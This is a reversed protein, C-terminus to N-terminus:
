KNIKIVPRVGYTESAQASQVIINIVDNVNTGLCKVISISNESAYPSRLMWNACGISNKLTSVALGLARAYESTRANKASDDTDYIYNFGYKTSKAEKYSLLYVKDVTNDCAYGNKNSATTDSSNDVETELIKEQELASFAQNYFEENLWARVASTSYDNGSTAFKQGSLVYESLLTVVGDKDELVRWKIPQVKFFYDQSKIQKSKVEAGKKDLSVVANDFSVAINYPKASVKVYLEGNLEYYGTEESPTLASLEEVLVYDTVVNQPYSGFFMYKIGNEVFIVGDEVQEWKAYFTKNGTEGTSIKEVPQGSLEENDYWGAFKKGILTPIPLEIEFLSNYTLPTSLAVFGGNCEYTVEYDWKAYVKFNGLSVNKEIKSVKTGEEYNPTTYWGDFVLGEKTPTPLTITDLVSYSTVLNDCTGGNLEYNITYEPADWKAYLNLAGVNGKKITNFEKNTGVQYWGLFECGEQVPKELVIYKEITYSTPNTKGEPLIGGKLDYTIQYNMPVKEYVATAVIDKDEEMKVVQVLGDVGEIKWGKFIRTYGRDLDKDPSVPRLGLASSNGIALKETAIVTGDTNMYTVVPRKVNLGVIFLVLGLVFIVIGIIGTILVKKQTKNM